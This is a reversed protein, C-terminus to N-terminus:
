IETGKWFLTISSVCDEVNCGGPLEFSKAKVDDGRGWKHNDGDWYYYNLAGLYVPEDFSITAIYENTFPQPNVEFKVPNQLVFNHNDIESSICGPSFSSVLILIAFTVGGRSTQQQTKGHLLFLLGVFVSPLILFAIPAFGDDFQGGYTDVGSSLEDNNINMGYLDGCEDHVIIHEGNQSVIFGYNEIKLLEIGIWKIQNKDESSESQGEYCETLISDKEEWGSVGSKGFISIKEEFLILVNETEPLWKINVLDSDVDGELRMSSQLHSIGSSYTSNNHNIEWDTNHIFSIVMDVDDPSLWSEDVTIYSTGLTSNRSTSPILLTHGPWVNLGWETDFNSCPNYTASVSESHANCYISDKNVYPERGSLHNVNLYYDCEFLNSQNKADMCQGDVLFVFEGRNVEWAPVSGSPPTDLITNFGNALDYIGAEGGKLYLLRTGDNDLMVSHPRIGDGWPDQETLFTDTYDQGKTLINNQETDTIVHFLIAFILIISFLLVGTLVRNKNMEMNTHGSTM